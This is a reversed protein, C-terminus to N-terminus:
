VWVNEATLNLFTSRKNITSVDHKSKFAKLVRTHGCPLAWCYVMILVLKCSLSILPTEEHLALSM